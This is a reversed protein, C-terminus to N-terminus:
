LISNQFLWIAYGFTLLITTYQMNKPSGKRFVSSRVKASYRYRKIRVNSFTACQGIKRPAKYVLIIQTVAGWEGRRVVCVLLCISLSRQSVACLPFPTHCLTYVM